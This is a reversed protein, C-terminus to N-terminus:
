GCAQEVTNSHATGANPGYIAGSQGTMAVFKCSALVNKRFTLTLTRNEFGTTSMGISFAGVGPVYNLPNQDIKNFLYTWTQDGNAAVNRNSPPGALAQVQDTTSAGIKLQSAVDSSASPTSSSLPPTSCASLLLLFIALPKRTM